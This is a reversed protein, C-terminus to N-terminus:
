FCFIFLSGKLDLFNIASIAPIELPIYIQKFIGAKSTISTLATTTGRVFMSWMILGLLLYLPFQEIDSEFINTFVIYLVALLLLPELFNWAFGLVSNRYRIKLDSIAFDWILYKKNWVENSIKM